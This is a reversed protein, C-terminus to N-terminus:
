VPSYAIRPVICKLLGHDSYFKGRYRFVEAGCLSVSRLKWYRTCAEISTTSSFLLHPLSQSECVLAVGFQNCTEHIQFEFNQGSHYAFFFISVMAKDLLDPAYIGLDVESDALIKDFVWLESGCGRKFGRGGGGGGGKKKKFHM